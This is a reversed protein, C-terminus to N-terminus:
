FLSSQLSATHFLPPDFLVAQGVGLLLAQDRLLPRLGQM